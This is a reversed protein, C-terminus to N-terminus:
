NTLFSFSLFFSLSFDSSVFMDPNKSSSGKAVEEGERWVQLLGASDVNKLALFSGIEDHLHKILAPAFGDVIALLKASEYTEPMTQDVYEALHLLGTHFAEHQEMNVAMINPNNTFAALRPFITSEETDHHHTAMVVWAKCFVLFDRIDNPQTVHPAQQYLSNLGRILVNHAHAMESACHISSHSLQAEENAKRNKQEISSLTKHLNVSDNETKSPTEILSFPTDAWPAM